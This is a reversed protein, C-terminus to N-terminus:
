IKISHHIVYLSPTCIIFLFHGKRRTIYLMPYVRKTNWKKGHIIQTCVYPNMQDKYFRGKPHLATAPMHTSTDWCGTGAGADQHLITFAGLHITFPKKQWNIETTAFFCCVSLFISIFHTGTQSITQILQPTATPGDKSFLPCLDWFQMIAWRQLGHLARHTAPCIHMLLSTLMVSALSTLASTLFAKVIVNNEEKKIHEQSKGLISMLTMSTIALDIEKWKESAAILLYIGM